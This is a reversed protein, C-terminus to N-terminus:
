SREVLPEACCHAVRVHARARWRVRVSLDARLTPSLECGIALASGEVFGLLHARWLAYARM